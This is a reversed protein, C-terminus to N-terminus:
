EFDYDTDINVDGDGFSPDDEHKAKQELCAEGGLLTRVQDKGDFYSTDRLSAPLSSHLSNMKPPKLENMLCGIKSTRKAKTPPTTMLDMFKENPYELEERIIVPKKNSTDKTTIIIEEDNDDYKPSGIM